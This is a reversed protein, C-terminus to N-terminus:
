VLFLSLPLSLPLSLSLSVCLLLSLMLPIPLATLCPTGDSHRVFNSPILLVKLTSQVLYFTKRHM